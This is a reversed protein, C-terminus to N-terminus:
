NAHVYLLAHESETLERHLTCHSVRSGFSDSLQTMAWQAFCAQLESLMAAAMAHVCSSSKLM